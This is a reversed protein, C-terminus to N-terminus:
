SSVKYYFLGGSDDAFYITSGFQQCGSLCDTQFDNLLYRKWEDKQNNYRYRILKGSKSIAYYDNMSGTILPTMKEKNELISLIKGDKRSHVTIRGVDDTLFIFHDTPYPSSTFTSPLKVEYIITFPETKIAVITGGHTVAYLIGDFLVPSAPIPSSLDVQGTVTGTIVNIQRISGDCSGIYITNGSESLAPSGNIFSDCKVTYLLKGNEPEFAYLKQDYSGVLVIGEAWVAGGAIKNGTQYTWKLGTKIHYAYFVGSEDGVYCIDEHELIPAIISNKSLPIVLKQTVNDYTDFVCLDGNANGAIIRSSSISIEGFQSTGLNITGFLPAAQNSPPSNTGAKMFSFIMLSSMGLLATFFILAKRIM